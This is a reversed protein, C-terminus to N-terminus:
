RGWTEQLFKLHFINMVFPPSEGWGGVLANATGVCSKDFFASTWAQCPVFTAGLIGILFRLVNLTAANHATGALGSPIAGLILIAAMVRRPGFRDVLPGAFVRVLVTATIAVVSSNAEEADTLNLDDKIAEPMLPPFAFWSLFAVFFGVSCMFGHPVPSLFCLFKRWSLHFAQAYPDALNFIPITYSKLNVPNVIAPKWLQSWAFPPPQRPTIEIRSSTASSNRHSTM